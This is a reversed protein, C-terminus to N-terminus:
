DIQMGFWELLARSEEETTLEREERQGGRTVILRRESLTVRGDPLFLTCLRKRTFMSEPSTQHYQCCAAFDNYDHLQLTFVYHRLWGPQGDPKVAREVLMSYDGVRNIAFVREGQCQDGLNEIMLPELPGSGWGVDVLWAPKPEDPCRVKLALHDFERAYSGDDEVGRANLLDVSYGLDILLRAFLGNLEYCFGGRRRFVIKEFLADEVLRIARGLHIDLNEFPVHYLHARQLGRLTTIDPTLPGQYRIRALYADTDM